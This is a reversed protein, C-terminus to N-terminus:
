LEDLENLPLLVDVTHDYQGLFAVHRFESRVPSFLWCNRARPLQARAAPGAATHAGRGIFEDLPQKTSPAANTKCSDHAAYRSRVDDAPQVRTCRALFTATAGYAKRHVAAALKPM